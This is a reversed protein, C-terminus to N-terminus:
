KRIAKRGFNVGKECSTFFDKLESYLQFTEEIGVSGLYGVGDNFSMCGDSFVVVYQGEFIIERKPTKM